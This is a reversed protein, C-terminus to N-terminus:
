KREKMYKKARELTIIANCGEIYGMDILELAEDYYCEFYKIYEDIDLHQGGVKLCNMAIFSENYASSCGMDQYFGGLSILQKPKYGIEEELERLASDYATEGKEIYGAPIGVGVTRRSFVRPEVTLIVQNDGVVPLIISASGDNKGKMIKERKIHHGNNLTCKYVDSNIFTGSESLKVKQITKLEELLQNLEMLKDKRM